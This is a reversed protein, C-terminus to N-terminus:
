RRPSTRGPASAPVSGTPPRREAGPQHGAPLQRGLREGLRWGQLENRQIDLAEALAEPTLQGGSMLRAGLAPRRGPSSASYVLGDKFWVESRSRDPHVLVLCGTAQDDALPTLLSAVSTPLARTDESM